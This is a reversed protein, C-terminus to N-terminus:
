LGRLPNIVKTVLKTLSGPRVPGEIILELKEIIPKFDTAYGITPQNLLLVDIQSAIEGVKEGMKGGAHIEVVINNRIFKSGGSFSIDGAVPKM